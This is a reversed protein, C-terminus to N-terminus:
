NGFALQGLNRVAFGYVMWYFYQLSCYYDLLTLDHM